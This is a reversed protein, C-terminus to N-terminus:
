LLIDMAEKATCTGRLIQWITNCIPMDVGHRKALKAILEANRKGEVVQGVEREAEQINQGRGIALGLRRNRSQNDSCTLILDGLGALGIFTELQGGLATGLRIIEALGHTILASRANAGLEMGDFIGTAIAIVNKAVGGIEVGIVDYSTYIHFLSSNFRQSLESLLETHHSAIVVACPLGAAVERAFSPGSLVAFPYDNGLVEESVESLLQGTEADLGKTACIIQQTPKLYSRLLTLTQRFGVSPVVVIIDDVDQVAEALNATPRICDPLSFGPMYRNNARDSLMATIESPEISWMNVVQNRRALYLALATGWSGTGLITIPKLPQAQM